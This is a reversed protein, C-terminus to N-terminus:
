GVSKRCTPLEFKQKTEREREREKVVIRKGDREMGKWGKEVEDEREKRRFDVHDVRVCM